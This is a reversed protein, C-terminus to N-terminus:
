NKSPVSEDKLLHVDLQRFPLTIGGSELALKINENLAFFTDWYDPTKVWPRVALNVSNDALELVAVVPAPDGLIRTEKALVDMIILRAKRIDDGYSIGFVLDIRRTGNATYNTINSGTVHSNPIITKVNDPTDIVTNFIEIDTVTGKTSAIEVFDGVKFPKFIILMVGAAFNSLSGQLALGIALGAAGVVVAFSGTQIGVKDLAAIVVFVLIAAYILHKAFASLTTDIHAKHMASEILGAITKAIWKGIFFILLAYIFEPIHVILWDMFKNYYDHQTLWKDINLLISDM